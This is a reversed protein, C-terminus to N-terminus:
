HKYALISACLIQIMGDREAPNHEHNPIVLDAFERTPALYRFYQPAVNERNYHDIDEASGGYGVALNRQKRRELMQTIDIDVYCRIHMLNRMQPYYLCFHGDLIVVDYGKIAACHSVMEDVRLSDPHNFNPRWELHYESWYKPLEDEPKFFRDLGLLHVHLPQLGACISQAITSKGCGSGGGIGIIVQDAPQVKQLLCHLHRRIANDDLPSM